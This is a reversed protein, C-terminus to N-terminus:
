VGLIYQACGVDLTHDVKAYQGPDFGKPEVQMRGTMRLHGLLAGASASERELDAVIFKARRWVRVVRAGVVKAEFNRAGVTRRWRVRAATVTRGELKPRIIRVVTEVEPLEPM